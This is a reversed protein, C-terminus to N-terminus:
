SDDLCVVRRYKCNFYGCAMEVSVVHTPNALAFAVNVKLFIALRLPALSTFILRFTASDRLM